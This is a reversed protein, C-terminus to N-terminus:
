TPKDPGPKGAVNENENETALAGKEAAAGNKAKAAKAKAAKAKAKTGKKAKKGSRPKEVGFLAGFLGVAGDDEAARAGRKVAAFATEWPQELADRRSIATGRAKRLREIPKLAAVVAKAAKLAAAAAANSAPLAPKHATVKAALKQVDAAEAAYGKNKIVNPAAFGFPKFPNVRPLGEGVLASALMEVASDQGVDADGVKSQGRRLAEDAKKVAGDAKEYAAHREGFAALRAAVPKTRAKGLTAAVELLHDGSEIRPGPNNGSQLTAM